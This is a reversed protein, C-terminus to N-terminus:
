SELILTFCRGPIPLRHWIHSYREDSIEDQMSDPHSLIVGFLFGNCWILPLYVFGFFFCMASFLNFILSVVLNFHNGSQRIDFLDNGFSNWEGNNWVKGFEYQLNSCQTRALPTAGNDASITVSLSLDTVAKM